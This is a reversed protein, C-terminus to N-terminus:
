RERISVEPKDFRIIKSPKGEIEGEYIIYDVENKIETHLNDISTMHNQGIKNASTTVVPYEAKNVFDFFWNNPIRVGVTNLGSNVVKPIKEPKKLKLILTYPGPLKKLWKKAEKPVVCNEKIWEISPAIISFPRNHREKLGRIKKVAEKDTANCGLGYITDTPYVFVKDELEQKYKEQKLLFEDKNLIRGMKYAKKTLM